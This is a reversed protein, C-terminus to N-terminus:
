KELESINKFTKLNEKTYKFLNKPLVDFDNFYSKALIEGNEKNYLMEHVCKNIYYDAKFGVTEINFLECHKHDKFNVYIELM